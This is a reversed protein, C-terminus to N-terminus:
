RGHARHRLLLEVLAPRHTVPAMHGLGPLDILTAHPNLEHLLTVMARAELPSREGMVLTTHPPLPPLPRDPAGTLDFFAGVVEQYMKWGVQRIPDRLADPMRAWSGPRNWYDIFAELWPETGGLADDFLASHEVMERARLAAPSDPRLEALAGFIVPEFLFVSRVRPGLLPLLRLAVLGGYSHGFLDVPGAAPLLALLHAADDSPTFPTPRLLPPHPPYGLNSPTLAVTDALVEAPLDGWMSPFTGTSHIFLSTAIM